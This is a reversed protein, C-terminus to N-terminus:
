TMSQPTRWTWLDRCQVKKERSESRAWLPWVTQFVNKQSFLRILTQWHGASWASIQTSGLDGSILASVTENSPTDQVSRLCLREWPKGNGPSWDGINPSKLHWVVRLKIILIKVFNQCCPVYPHLRWIMGYTQGASAPKSQCRLDCTQCKFLSSEEEWHNSLHETIM